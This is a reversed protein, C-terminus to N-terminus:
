PHRTRQKVVAWTDRVAQEFDVDLLKAAEMLCSLYCDYHYPTTSGICYSANRLMETVYDLPSRGLLPGPLQDPTPWALSRSNLASAYFIACDGIADVLRARQEAVPYRPEHGWLESQRQKLLVHLLEGAEEMMGYVPLEPPQGPFERDLWVKHEALLWNM